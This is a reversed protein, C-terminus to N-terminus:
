TYMNIAIKSKKKLLFFFLGPRIQSVFDIQYPRLMYYGIVFHVYICVCVHPRLSLGGGGAHHIHEIMSICKAFFYISSISQTNVTCSYQYLLLNECHM